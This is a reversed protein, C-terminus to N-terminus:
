KQFIQGNQIFVREKYTEQITDGKRSVIKYFGKVNYGNIHNTFITDFVTEEMSSFYIIPTHNIFSFREEIMRKSNKKTLTVQKNDSKGCSLLIIGM